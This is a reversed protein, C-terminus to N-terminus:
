NIRKVKVCTRLYLSKKARGRIDDNLNGTRPARLHKDAYSDM